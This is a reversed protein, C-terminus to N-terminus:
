ITNFCAMLALNKMGIEVVFHAFSYTLDILYEIYSGILSTKVQQTRLQSVPLISSDSLIMNSFWFFLYLTSIFSIKSLDGDLLDNICLIRLKGLRAWLQHWLFRQCWKRRTELTVNGYGNKTVTETFVHGYHRETAGYRYHRQRKPAMYVAYRHIPTDFQWCGLQGLPSASSNGASGLPRLKLGPLLPFPFISNSEM